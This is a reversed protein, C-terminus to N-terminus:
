LNCAEDKHKAARLVKKRKEKELFQVDFKNLPCYGECCHDVFGFWEELLAKSHSVSFYLHAKRM